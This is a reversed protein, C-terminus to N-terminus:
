GSQRWSPDWPPPLGDETCWTRLTSEDLSDLKHQERIEMAVTTWTLKRSNGIARIAARMAAPVDAILRARRSKGAGTAPSFYADLLSELRRRDHLLGWDLRDGARTFRENHGERLDHDLADEVEDRAYGEEAFKEFLGEWRFADFGQESM